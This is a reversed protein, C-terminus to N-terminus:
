AADVNCVNPSAIARAELGTCEFVAQVLGTAVEDGNKIGIKDWRGLKDNLHQRMEVVGLNAHNLPSPPM